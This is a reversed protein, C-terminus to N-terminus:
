LSDNTALERDIDFKVFHSQTLVTLDILSQISGQLEEASFDGSRAKQELALSSQYLAAAGFTGACSKTAHVEKAINVVDDENLVGKQKREREKLEQCFIELMRPLMELSTDAVLQKLVNIDMLPQNDSSM